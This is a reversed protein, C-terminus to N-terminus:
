KKKKKGSGAGSINALMNQILTDQLEQSKDHKKSKKSKKKQPTEQERKYEQDTNTAIVAKRPSRNPSMIARSILAQRVVTDDGGNSSSNTPEQKIDPTVVVKEKKKAKKKSAAATNTNTSSSSPTSFKKEMSALLSDQLASRTPSESKDKKRKRKRKPSSVAPEHDDSQPEKKVEPSRELAGLTHTLDEESEEEKKRRKKPPSQDVTEADNSKRKDKKSKKKKGGGIGSDESDEVVGNAATTETGSAESMRNWAAPNVEEVMSASMSGNKAKSSMIGEAVSEQYLEGMIFPIKQSMDTKLVRIRVVQGIKAKAGCWQAAAAPRMERDPRYCPVNFCGHVLVSVHNNSKKNIVGSLTAGISPRFVWFDSIVDLHIHSEENLFHGTPRRLFLKGYGAM